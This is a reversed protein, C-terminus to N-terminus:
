VNLVQRYVEYTQQATTKWSFTLARQKGLRKLENKLKTDSVVEGIKRRIQSVDDPDVILAAGAAIEKLSGRDTTIVPCGSAFAEVVPLGFGEYYSPALLVTALQYIASLENTRISGLRIISPHSSALEQAENLARNWPHISIKDVNLFSNSVVVLPIAAEKSARICNPLNKNWNGEGVFLAFTSPLKFQRQIKKLESVKKEESFEPKAALYIPTVKTKSISLLEVIDEKSAKSDTIIRDAYYASLRQIQWKVRGKIGSPFYDPFKLTILDHITVVTKKSRLFPMTLFFPDFYPYHYLDVNESKSDLKSEVVDVQNHSRLAAVLNRMYVGTGRHLHGIIPPQVIAVRM